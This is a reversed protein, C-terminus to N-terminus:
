QVLKRAVERLMDEADRQRARETNADAKTFFPNTKRMRGSRTVRPQYYPEGHVYGSYNAFAKVVGIRSANRQSGEVFRIQRALNGTRSRAEDPGAVNARMEYKAQREIRRGVKEVLDQMAANMEKPAAQLMKEVGMTDLAVQIRM